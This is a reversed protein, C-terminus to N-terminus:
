SGGGHATRREIVHPAGDVVLTALRALQDGPLFAGDAEAETVVSREAVPSDGNGRSEPPTAM